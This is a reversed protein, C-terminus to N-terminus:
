TIFTHKQTPPPRLVEPCRLQPQFITPISIAAAFGSLLIIFEYKKYVKKCKVSIHFFHKKCGKTCKSCNQIHETMIKPCLLISAQCLPTIRGCLMGIGHSIRCRHARKSKAKGKSPMCFFMKFDRKHTKFAFIDFFRKHTSKSWFWTKSFHLFTKSIDAM